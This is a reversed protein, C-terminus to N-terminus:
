CTNITSVHQETHSRRLLTVRRQQKYFGPLKAAVFLVPGKNPVLRTEARQLLGVQLFGTFPSINAEMLTATM